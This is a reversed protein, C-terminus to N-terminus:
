CVFYLNYNTNDYYLYNVSTTMQQQQQSPLCGKIEYKQVSSSSSQQQQEEDIIDYITAFNSLSLVYLVNDDTIIFGYFKMCINWEINNLKIATSSALSFKYLNCSNGSSSSSSSSSQSKSTAAILYIDNDNVLLISIIDNKTIESYCSHILGTSTIFYFGNKYIRKRYIKNQFYLLCIMM